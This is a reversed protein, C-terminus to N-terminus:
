QGLKFVLGGGLGWQYMTSYTSVGAGAGGTGFYLGGGMSQVASLLDAQLKLGVKETVWINTGLKITWTFKTATNDNGAEANKLTFIGVGAALGAYPEVKGGTQFYNTGGLLIYNMALEFDKFNIGNNYFEMPAIADRRLYKLEIGKTEDVMFELGGGWQFGGNITGEYYDTNSYYSDVNDDFIYEAYGNFRINQAAAIGTIGAILIISLMIKKM